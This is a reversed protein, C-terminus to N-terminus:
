PGTGATAAPSTRLAEIAEGATAGPHDALYNAILNAAYATSVSTGIYANSQGDQAAPFTVFGPAWIDVFEGHNSREWPRGDPGLAGVGIVSPYAAPFMPKGTPENGAAALVILGQRAAYDFTAQLLTNSRESGWSLSMVRAGNELAFDISEMLTFNTTFGNDDFARVAIVPAPGMEQDRAGYPAVAGAAIQTMRTGHGEPDSISEGPALADLSAVVQEGLSASPRYGSDLVAVTAAGEEQPRQPGTGADPQLDTLVRFPLSIPYAFDPEAASVAPHGSLASAIAPVNSGPPLLVRYVGLAPFSEVLTAGLRKLLEQFARADTGPAPGLLLEDKVFLTGDAPNKLITRPAPARLPRARDRQGPQFVQVEALQEIPGLPGEVTKWVLVHNVDRLISDMGKRLDRDRFSATVRPNIREDSRVLVGRGAIELLIKSGGQTRPKGVDYCFGNRKSV